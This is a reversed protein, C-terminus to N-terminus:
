DAKSASIRQYVRAGGHEFVLRLGEGSIPGARESAFIYDAARADDLATLADWEFYAAARLDLAKRESYIPLWGHGDAARLLADDPAHERLWRMAAIDARTVTEHPLDLAPRLATLLSPFAIGLALILLATAAMLPTAAARLRRKIGPSVQREWLELLAIAAFWSGPLILGHRALNPANVMDGLPALLAGIMGLFAFEMVLLLWILMLLSWGRLDASKRLGFLMGAAALALFIIGQERPMDLLLAANAPYPSPSIPTLLPLNKILWPSVAILAVLPFGITLTWHSRSSGADALRWSWFILAAFGLLMVLSMSWSTIFVAGMMLGGALADLLQNHRRCRLAYLLFAQMFPLALLEAFHGDLASLHLGGGLLVGIALARGLRKDRMEAGFDYALWLALFISLAGIVLQILPIPQGLQQSLYASLAHLGPPTLVTAESLPSLASFSQGLSTTLSHTASIQGQTGLAAPLHQAPIILLMAALAFFALDHPGPWGQDRDQLREGKAEARAQATSLTGGLVVGSLLAFLLYDIVLTDWGFLEAYFVAGGVVLALCFTSALAVRPQATRWAPSLMAGAGLLVAGVIFVVFLSM